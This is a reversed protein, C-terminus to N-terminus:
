DQQRDTVKSQNERNKNATYVMIGREYAYEPTQIRPSMTSPQNPQFQFMQKPIDSKGPNQHLSQIPDITYRRADANTNAPIKSNM